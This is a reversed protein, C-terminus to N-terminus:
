EACRWRAQDLWSGQITLLEVGGKGLLVTILLHQQQRWPSWDTLPPKSQSSIVWCLALHTSDAPLWCFVRPSMQIM